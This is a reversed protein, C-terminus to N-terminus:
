ALPGPARALSRWGGGADRWRHAGPDAADPQRAFLLGLISTGVAGVICAYLITARLENLRDLYIELPYDVTVVAMVRGKPDVIPAFASIWTGRANSYVGTYRAVGDDFTWRLPDILEAAVSYPDGPEDPGM